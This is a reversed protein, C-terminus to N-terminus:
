QREEWSKPNSRGHFVGIVLITNERIIYHIQYPFKKLNYIRIEKYKVALTEPNLSIYQIGKELKEKFKNELNSSPISTYLDIADKIDLLTEDTLLLQYTM